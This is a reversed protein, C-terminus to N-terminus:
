ARVLALKDHNRFGFREWGTSPLRIIAHTRVCQLLTTTMGTEIVTHPRGKFDHVTIM